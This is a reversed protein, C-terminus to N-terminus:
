ILHSIITELVDAFASSESLMSRLLWRAIPGSYKKILNLSEQWLYSGILKVLKDPHTVLDYVFAGEHGIWHLAGDIDNKLPNWINKIVWQTIDSSVRKILNILNNLQNTVWNGLDNIGNKLDNLADRAWNALDPIIQNAIKGIYAFLQDLYNGATHIWNILDNYVISISNEIAQIQRHIFDYVPAILTTIWRKVDGISGTVFNLISQIIQSM